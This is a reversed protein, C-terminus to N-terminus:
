ISTRAVDWANCDMKALRDDLEKIARHVAVLIWDCWNVAVGDPDGDGDQDEADCEM